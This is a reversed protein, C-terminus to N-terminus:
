RNAREPKEPKEPKEPREPKEPKEPKEPREPKEPKEPKEAREPKEPKEPKDLRAIKETREPRQSKEKREIRAAKEADPRNSKVNRMVDGVKLDYERFIEGWGRGDARLDLIGTADDNSLLLLLERDSIGAESIAEALGLALSIEGFGLANGETDLTTEVIVLETRETGDDNLVPNGADDVVVQEIEEEVTISSGTRLTKILEEHDGDGLEAFDSDIKETVKQNGTSWSSEPTPDEPLPEDQAFTPSCALALALLGSSCWASKKFATSKM